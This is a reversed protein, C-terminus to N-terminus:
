EDEGVRIAGESNLGHSWFGEISEANRGHAVLLWFGFVPKALVDLIAYGIIESDVSWLRAGDGIGWVIPYLTWLILTFGGIAVFLNATSDSKSAVARRGPIALQYIITLYAICSFTYYGWKQSENHSFAAFLGLLVMLIDAVLAIVISAGNLGALFALDLLLLPTTVVWDAYRAWYVQRLVTHNNSDAIFTYGDGTAMAFYSVAAFITIFTTVVHFLRKQVVVRQSLFAFSISSLLMIAFVIWLTRTGTVGARDYSPLHASETPLVSTKHLPATLASASLASPGRGDLIDVPDIM